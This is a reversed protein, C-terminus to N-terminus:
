VTEIPGYLRNLELWTLREGERDPTPSRWRAGDDEVPTFSQWVYGNRDKVIALVKPETPLAPTLVRISVVHEASTAVMNSVGASGIELWGGYMIKAKGHLVIEVEDGDKVEDKVSAAEPAVRTIEEASCWVSRGGPNEVRYPLSPDFKDVTGIKVVAGTTFWSPRAPHPETVIVEDGEAFEPNYSM